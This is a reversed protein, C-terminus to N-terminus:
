KEGELGLLGRLFKDWTIEKNLKSQEILKKELLIQYTEKFISITTRRNM